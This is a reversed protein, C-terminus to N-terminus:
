SLGSLAPGALILDPLRLVQLNQRVHVSTIVSPSCPNGEESKTRLRRRESFCDFTSSRMTWRMSFNAVAEYEEHGCMERLHRRPRGTIRPKAGGIM